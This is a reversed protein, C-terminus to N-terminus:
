NYSIIGNNEVALKFLSSINEYFNLFYTDDKAIEKIRSEWKIFEDNLKKCNNNNIMGECDSFNIIEIFPYYPMPREWVLNIDIGITFKCLKERLMNYSSYPINGSDGIRVGEYFGIRKNTEFDYEAYDWDEDEPETAGLFRKETYVSINLGM